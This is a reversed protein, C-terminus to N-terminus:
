AARAFEGRAEKLALVYAQHASEPTAHYGLFRYNGDVIIQGYWKNKETSWGVGKL